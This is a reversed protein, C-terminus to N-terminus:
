EWSPKRWESRPITGVEAGHVRIVKERRQGDWRVVFLGHQHEIAELMALCAHIEDTKREIDNAQAREYEGILKGDSWIESRHLKKGIPHAIVKVSM